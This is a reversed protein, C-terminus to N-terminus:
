AEQLNPTADLIKLEVPVPEEVCLCDKERLRRWDTGDSIGGSNFGFSEGYDGPFHVIDGPKLERVSPGVYEVVGRRLDQYHKKKDVLVINLKKELDGYRPLCKVLIRNGLPKIM